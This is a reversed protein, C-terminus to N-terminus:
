LTPYINNSVVMYSYQSRFDLMSGIYCLLVCSRQLTTCGLRLRCYRFPGFRFRYYSATYMALSLSQTFTRPAPSFFPWSQHKLTTLLRERCSEVAYKSKEGQELRPNCSYTAPETLSDDRHGRTMPHSELQDGQGASKEVDPKKHTLSRILGSGSEALIEERKAEKLKYRVLVFSALFSIIAIAM